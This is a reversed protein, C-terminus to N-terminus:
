PLRALALDVEELSQGDLPPPLVADLAQLVADALRKRVHGAGLGVLPDVAEGRFSALLSQPRRDTNHKADETKQARPEAEEQDVADGYLEGADDEAAQAVVEAQLLPSLATAPCIRPITATTRHTTEMAILPRVPGGCYPDRGSEQDSSPKKAAIEVREHGV